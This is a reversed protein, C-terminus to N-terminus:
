KEITVWGLSTIKKKDSIQTIQKAQRTDWKQFSKKTFYKAKQEQVTYNM